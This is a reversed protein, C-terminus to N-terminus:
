SRRLVDRRRRWRSPRPSYRCTAASWTMWSEHARRHQGRHPDFQRDEDPGNRGLHNVLFCVNRGPAPHRVLAGMTMEVYVGYTTGCRTGREYPPSTVWPTSRIFNGRRVPEKTRADDDPHVVRRARPVGAVLSRQRMFAASDNGDREAAREAAARRADAPAGTSRRRV